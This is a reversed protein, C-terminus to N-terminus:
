ASREVRQARLHVLREKRRRQQLLLQVRQLRRQVIELRPQALGVRAHALAGRERAFGGGDFRREELLALAAVLDAGRARRRERAQRRQGALRNRGVRGDRQGLQAIGDGVRPAAEFAEAGPRLVRLEIARALARRPLLIEGRGGVLGLDGGEPAAAEALR